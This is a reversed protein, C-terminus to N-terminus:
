VNPTPGTPMQGQLPTERYRRKVAFYYIISAPLSFLFMLVIWLVQNEVKHTIVHLLMVVWFIVAWVGFAFMVVAFALGFGIFGRAEEALQECAIPKGNLECRPAAFATQTMGTFLAAALALSALAQSILSKM